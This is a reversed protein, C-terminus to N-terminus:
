TSMFGAWLAARRSRDARALRITDAAGPDPRRAATRSAQVGRRRWAQLDPHPGQERAKRLRRDLVGAHDWWGTTPVEWVIKRAVPDWARLVGGQKLADKDKILDPRAAQMAPPLSEPAGAVQDMFFVAVNPNWLGPRYVPRPSDTALLDASDIAPIYVLGTAPSCTSRSRGIRARTSTPRSCRETVGITFLSSAM